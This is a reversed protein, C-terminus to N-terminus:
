RTTGVTRNGTVRNWGDRVADKIQEWTSTGRHEYRSWDSSLDSEVETWDKDLHRNAAEYGYRYGPQYFEYDRGASTAYPRSRYNTRWYNDEDKWDLRNTPNAM